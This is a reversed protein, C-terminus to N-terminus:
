RVGAEPKDLVAHMDKVLDPREQTVSNGIQDMFEAIMVDPLLALHGDGPDLRRAKAIHDPRRTPPMPRRRCRSPM